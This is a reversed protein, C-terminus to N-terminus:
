GTSNTDDGQQRDLLYLRRQQNHARVARRRQAKGGM